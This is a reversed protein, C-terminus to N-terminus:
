IWSMIAVPVCMEDQGAVFSQKMNMMNYPHAIIQSFAM